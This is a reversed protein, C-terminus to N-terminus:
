FCSPTSAAPFEKSWKNLEDLFMVLGEKIQGSSHSLPPFTSISALLEITCSITKMADNFSGAYARRYGEEVNVFGDWNTVRCYPSYRTSYYEVAAQIAGWREKKKILKAAEEEEKAKKKKAEEIAAQEAKKKKAAEERVRDAEKIFSESLAKTDAFWCSTIVHELDLPSIQGKNFAIWADRCKEYKIPFLWVISEYDSNENSRFSISPMRPMGLRLWMSTFWKGQVVWLVSSTDEVVDLMTWTASAKCVEKLQEIGYIIAIPIYDVM